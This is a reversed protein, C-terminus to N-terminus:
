GKTTLTLEVDDFATRAGERLTATAQSAAADIAAILAEADVEGVDSVQGDLLRMAVDDFAGVVAAVTTEAGIDKGRGGRKVRATLISQATAAPIGLVTNHVTAIDPRIALVEALVQHVTKSGLIKDPNNLIANAIKAADADTIPMDDEESPQPTPRAPTLSGAQAIELRGLAATYGLRDAKRGPAWTSHELHATVPLGLWELISSNALAMFRRYSPTWDAANMGGEFETGWTYPRANDKPITKGAVTLPGGRGPHNARGLTIIRYVEDWGGYGNALPGPLDRSPDGARVFSYFRTLGHARSSYIHHSMEAVRNAMPELWRGGSDPMLDIVCEVGRARMISQLRRAESLAVDQAPTSM